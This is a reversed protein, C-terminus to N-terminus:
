HGVATPGRGAVAAGDAAAGDDVTGDGATGNGGSGDGAAGGGSAGAGSLRRAFALLCVGGLMAVIAVTGLLGDTRVRRPPQVLGARTPTAPDVLAVVHDGPRLLTHNTALLADVPGRSSSYRVVTTGCPRSCGAPRGLITVTVEHGPPVVIPRGHAVALLGVLAGSTVLLVLGLITAARWRAGTTPPDPPRILWLWASRWWPAAAERTEHATESGAVPAHQEPARVHTRRVLPGIAFGIALACLHGWDTFTGSVVVGSLGYIILGVTLVTSVPRRFRYTLVGAAAFLGYSIGVDVPTLIDRGATGGRAQLWIGITTALTAGVHGAVFVGIWRYTGIWRELPVFVITFELLLKALHGQETLFASLLLVRPADHSMQVLNTSQSRLIRTATSADVDRLALTTVTIVLLLIHTGPAKALYSAVARGARRLRVRLLSSTRVPTVSTRVVV